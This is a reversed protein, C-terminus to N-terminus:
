GGQPTIRSGPSASPELNGRRAQEREISEFLAKFNGKGFGRAGRRQIVEFFLTPRDQVPRTFLQLLYGHEDRDVLVRLRRLEELPENIPGVRTPLQDYYADPVQLFEGGRRSVSAVSSVIDRSALAIHQVGAGGYYDIYEQIQSRGLRGEAPENIPLRVLYSRDAVVVSRLASYETSIDKDDFSLYPQFDFVRGYWDVWRQMQGQEVNAVVHDVAVLGADPEGIRAEVFGPLFPRAYAGRGILSHLTDGYAHVAARRVRGGSDDVLDEPALASRAGREVLGRHSQDVDDVQFAIDRVGDGHRRVHEAVPGDPGLPSTILLRISGQALVYSTRDRLGTELGAYALQSFGFAKRFYFAAQKANGVWLELHHVQKPEFASSM